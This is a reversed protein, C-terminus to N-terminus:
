RLLEITTDAAFGWGGQRQEPRAVRIIDGRKLHFFGSHEANADVRSASFSFRGQAGCLLYRIRGAKNLMPESVIRCADSPSPRAPASDTAGPKVASFWTMKLVSKDLNVRSALDRVSDPITWALEDHCTHGPGDALAPCKGAFICPADISWGARVLGDRLELTERSTFLLAPELVLIRGGPELATGVRELLALRREIRDPMATWLENLSHGFVACDFPGYAAPDFDELRAKVTRMRLKASASNYSLAREALALAENGGDVLVAETAGADVFAASMPGPGSGMDLIRRPRIGARDIAYAAQAYSVPWYFLFYANLIDPDEMYGAGILQRDGTLGRQLRLLATATRALESRSLREPGEKAKLGTHDHRSKIIFDMRGNLNKATQADHDDALAM